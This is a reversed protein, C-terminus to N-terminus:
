SSREALVDDILGRLAAANVGGLVRAAARQDCTDLGVFRVGQSRVDRCVRELDTAEKICPPCWSGRVNLSSTM